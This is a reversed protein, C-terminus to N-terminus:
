RALLQDLKKTLDEVAKQLADVKEDQEKLEKRINEDDEIRHRNEIQLNTIELSNEDIYEGLTKMIQSAFESEAYLMRRYDDDETTGIDGAKFGGAVPHVPLMDELQETIFVNHEVENVSAAEAHSYGNFALAPLGFGFMAVATAIIKKKNL